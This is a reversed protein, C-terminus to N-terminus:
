EDSCTWQVRGTLHTRSAGATTLTPTLATFSAQGSGDPAMVFTTAAGPADTTWVQHATPTSGPTTGQTTVPDISIVVPVPTQQTRAVTFSGAATKFTATVAGREAPAEVTFTSEKAPLDACKGPKEWWYDFPVPKAEGNIELTGTIRARSAGPIVSAVPGHLPSDPVLWGYAAAAILGVVALGILWFFLGCGCGSGGSPAADASGDSRSSSAAATALFAALQQATQAQDTTIAPDAASVRTVKWQDSVLPTHCYQCNGDPGIPDKAGCSPCSAVAGTTVATAPRQFVWDETRAVGDVRAAFRVVITDLADTSVRVVTPELLDVTPGHPATGVHDLGLGVWATDAIKVQVPDTRGTARADQVALYLDAAISLFSEIDFGPDRRSIETLADPPPPPPPPPTPNAM